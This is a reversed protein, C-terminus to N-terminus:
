DALHHVSQASSEEEGSDSQGGGAMMVTHLTMHHILHVMVLLAGGVIILLAMLFIIDNHVSGVNLLTLVNHNLVALMDALLDMVARINNTVVRLDDMSVVMSMLSYAVRKVNDYYVNEIHDTEDM